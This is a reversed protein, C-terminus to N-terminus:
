EHLFRYDTLLYVLVAQWSRITFTRDREIRQDAPLEPFGDRRDNVKTYDWRGQCQYNSFEFGNQNMQSRALHEEELIKWTDVYLSLLREIDPDNPELREGWLRWVLHTLNTRIAALNDPVEVLPLGPGARPTMPVTTVEVHPFLTRSAAPRTFDFSAMRCAMLNGLYTAGALMTPSVAPARATVVRSDIGGMMMEWEERLWHRKQGDNAFRADNRIDGAHIGLTAQYKRSLMEPGLLFGHGLGEQMAGAETTAAKARFWPSKLIAVVVRRLDQGNAMFDTGTDHFFDSQPTFAKVQVAFDAAQKDKPYDLPRLGTLGQFMRRTVAIGFRPDNAIQKTTWQLARPYESAPMLQGSFGPAFLDDHWDDKPDFSPRAGNEAYGRFAGAIEDLGAAHCSRCAESNRTPNQVSTLQSSDVPREAFKLVDTGLFVQMTKWARKRGRNTATTEWRTLFAPTSLVGASPVLVDMNERRQKVGTQKTWQWFSLAPPQTDTLGYAVALYPNVVVYEGTLIEGFPRENRVVYEILRMPEERISREAWERNESTYLPHMDDTYRERGPYQDGLDFIGGAGDTLLADNWIERLREYFGEQYTLGRLAEDLAGDNNTVGDLQEQTPLTGAVNISAKRLLTPNDLMSVKFGPDGKPCSTDETKKLRAVFDTLIKLENSDKGLVPGGGHSLEGVPKQLLTPKGGVEVQSFSRFVELNASVFDPHNDRYTIFKAGGAKATGEGVHCNNCNKELVKGYVETIFFERTSQCQTTDGTCSLGASALSFIISSRVLASRV